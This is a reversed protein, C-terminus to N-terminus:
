HPFGDGTKFWGDVFARTAQARRWFERFVNIEKVQIEGPSCGNDALKKMLWDCVFASLPSGVHSPSREGKYPNSLIMGTETKRHLLRGRV